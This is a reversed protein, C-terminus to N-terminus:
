FIGMGDLEEQFKLHMQMYEMQERLLEDCRERVQAPMVCNRYGKLLLLIETSIDICKKHLRDAEMEYIRKRARAKEGISVQRRIANM